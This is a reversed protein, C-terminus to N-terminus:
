SAAAIMVIRDPAPLCTSSQLYGSYHSPRACSLHISITDCNPDDALVDGCNVLDASPIISPALSSAETDSILTPLVEPEEVGVGGRLEEGGEWSEERFDLV